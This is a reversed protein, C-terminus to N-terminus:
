IWSRSFHSRWTSSQGFIGCNETLYKDSVRGGWGKSVFAIVAQPTIGILFKVTNHHKYHSYTQARAMLDRPRECFVEFCDIVFVCKEFGRLTKLCLKGLNNVSHGSQSSAEPSCVHCKDVEENNKVTSQTM